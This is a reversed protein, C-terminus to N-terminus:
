GHFVRAFGEENTEVHVLIGNGDDVGGVVTAGVDHREPRDASPLAVDVLQDAPQLGLARGEHEHVLGTGAPVPQVAVHQPSVTGVFHHVRRDSFAEDETLLFALWHVRVGPMPLAEHRDQLAHVQVARPRTELRDPVGVHAQEDRLAFVDAVDSVTPM